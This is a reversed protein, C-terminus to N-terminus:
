NESQTMQRDPAPRVALARADGPPDAADSEAAFVRRVRSRPRAQRPTAESTRAVSASKLTTGIIYASRTRGRVPARISVDREGRAHEDRGPNAGERPRPNFSWNEM